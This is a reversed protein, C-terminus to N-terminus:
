IVCRCYKVIRPFHTKKQQINVEFIKDINKVFNNYVTRSDIPTTQHEYSSKLKKFNLNRLDIVLQPFLAYIFQFKM